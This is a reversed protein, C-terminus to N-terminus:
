LKASDTVIFFYFIVRYFGDVLSAFPGVVKAIFHGLRLEKYDSENTKVLPPRLFLNYTLVRIDKPALYFFLFSILRSITM